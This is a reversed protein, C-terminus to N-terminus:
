NKKNWYKTHKCKKEIIGTIFYTFQARKINIFCSYTNVRLTNFMTTRNIM